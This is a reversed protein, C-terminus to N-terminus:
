NNKTAEKAAMILPTLSALPRALKLFPHKLLEMASARRDVEVELCQDLFDQFVPSLKEKEKIEPKGNTAILYLAKLPNENLYPPEGEVMEIAMIGLSWLDVKPGYQKRTVVEPAMWYPTGVMTTRKSQEPSIQACFGFDTLKVSGDLGLLINDSKIDRHIVQNSHLFELAQLVERCVAAIQGEDMCTETVVDTLSGGPLYEMVVWLEESVLYSDLYNVVNPHKNERMVLIENIILEKKPQQSLNMQKIAVEMGTSSEIATYVTGSAGQGIKEMKTYKRNPDGVSVITRLKELIEEDSMKKKKTAGSRQQTTTTTAPTTTTTAAGTTAAQAPSAANSSAATANAGATSVATLNNTNTDHAYLNANNKNKDLTSAAVHTPTKFQPQALNNHQPTTPTTAPAATPPPIITAVAPQVVEEIPRTYISKTREPRSAIPPPPPQPTGLIDDENASSHQSSSSATNGGFNYSHSQSITAPQHHQGHQQQQQHHHSHQHHSQQQQLHHPTHLQHNGLGSSVLGTSNNLGVNSSNSGGGITLSGINVGILNGGSNSGHLESDTPTSSPSSSSVRSLSSGSHTTIANTMYKSSPRQKTTNDFWKLVDLVAQPNKKQEQKSINSNMLLRAWAEPMGTFEGTVADFGVHVTHEFNTPYSINPKSDQHSPKSGKIKNKLTKKKRDPDDPEKPLPRMDVPPGDGSGTVSGLSGGVRDGGRNSTLRVPPAPPKDEESSMKRINYPPLITNFILYISSKLNLQSFAFSFM